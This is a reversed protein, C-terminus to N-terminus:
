IKKAIVFMNDRTNLYIKWDGWRRKMAHDYAKKLIKMKQWNALVKLVFRLSFKKGVRVTEIVEFGNKALFRSLNKRGFIHLHNPPVLAHWRRRFVKALFSESDPTNLALIGGAKLTKRAQRIAVDPRGFHELVDWFTVADFQNEPVDYTEFNGTVISLGKKRGIESAYRSIEIGNADWGRQGASKMFHGTAAGVDLLKGKKPFNKEMKELYAEFIGSMVERDGEYDAYGLSDEAGSFYDESYIKTYDGSTPWVFILGCKGCRYLDFGNKETFFNASQIECVPCTTSEPNKKM